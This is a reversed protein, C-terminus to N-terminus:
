VLIRFLFDATQSAPFRTIRFVGLSVFDHDLDPVAEPLPSVGVFISLNKSM